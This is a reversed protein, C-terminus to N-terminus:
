DLMRGVSVEHEPMYNLRYVIFVSDNLLSKYGPIVDKLQLVADSNDFFRVPHYYQRFFPLSGMTEAEHGGIGRLVVWEPALYAVATYFNAKERKLVECVEPSALGPYDLMRGGSFYGIYGLCELYITDGPAIQTRLWEGVVRRTGNEVIDQQARCQITSIFFIWLSFGALVTFSFLLLRKFLMNDLSLISGARIIVFLGLVSVPPFYWPYAYQMSGLYVFLVPLMFSLVKLAMDGRLRKSCFVMVPSALSLCGMLISFVRVAYPWDAFVPYAPAYIKPIVALLNSMLGASGRLALSKAIVTHPVPSGYYLWAGLFWPLYLLTCVVAAKFILLLMRKRDKAFAMVGLMMAAIYVCSDPRSWMLGAWSAGWLISDEYLDHSVVHVSCSLFFLVLATEMGNVSFMVSKIDFAYLALFFCCFAAPARLSRALIVGGAVFAPICFLLRFLWIAHLYSLKGTFAHSLAPLLVGLPSTFGHVRTGPEYTLGFGKCLNESHKFTIFFDEWINGTFLTYALPVSALFLVAAAPAAIRSLRM